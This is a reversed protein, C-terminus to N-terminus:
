PLPQSLLTSGKLLDVASGTPDAQKLALSKHYSYFADQQQATAELLQVLGMTKEYGWHNRIAIAVDDILGPNSRAAKRTFNRLAAIVRDQENLVDIVRGTSDEVREVEALCAQARVGVRNIM